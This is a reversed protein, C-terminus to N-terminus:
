FANEDYVGSLDGVEQSAAAVLAAEGADENATVQESAADALIANIQSAFQGTTAVPLAGTTNNASFEQNTPQNGGSPLSPQSTAWWYGLAIIAVLVIPLWIKGKKTM